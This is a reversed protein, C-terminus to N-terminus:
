LLGGLLNDVTKATESLVVQKMGQETKTTAAGVVLADCTLNHLAKSTIQIDM